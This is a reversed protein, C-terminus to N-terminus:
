RYKKVTRRKKRGGGNTESSTAAASSSLIETAGGEVLVALEANETSTLSTKPPPALPNFYTFAATGAVGISTLISGMNSWLWQRGQTALWATMAAV